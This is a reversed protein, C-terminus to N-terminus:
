KGRNTSFVMSLAYCHRMSSERERERKSFGINEEGTASMSEGPPPYEDGGGGGRDGELSITAKVERM